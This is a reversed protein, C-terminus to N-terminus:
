KVPSAGAVRLQDPGSYTMTLTSAVVVTSTLSSLLGPSPQFMTSPLEVNSSTV